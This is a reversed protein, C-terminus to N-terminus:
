CDVDPAAVVSELADEMLRVERARGALGGSRVVLADDTALETVGDRVEVEWAIKSWCDADTDVVEDDSGTFGVIAVVAVELSLTAVLAVLVAGRVPVDCLASGVVSTWGVVVAPVDCVENM